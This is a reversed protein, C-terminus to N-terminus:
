DRSEAEALRAHLRARVEDPTYARRQRERARWWWVPRRSVSSGPWASCRGGGCRGLSRVTGAVRIQREVLRDLQGAGAVDPQEAAAAGGVPGDLSVVLLGTLWTPM